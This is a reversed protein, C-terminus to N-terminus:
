EGLKVVLGRSANMKMKAVLVSEQRSEKAQGTVGLSRGM